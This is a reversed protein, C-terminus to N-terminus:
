QQARARMRVAAEEAPMSLAKIKGEADKEILTPLHEETAPAATPAAPNTKPTIVPPPPPPPPPTYEPTAPTKEPTPPLIQGSAMSTVGAVGGVMVGIALWHMRM